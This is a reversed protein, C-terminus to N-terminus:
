DQEMERIAERYTRVDKHAKPRGFGFADKYVKINNEVQVLKFFSEMIHVLPWRFAPAKPLRGNYTAYGFAALIGSSVVERVLVSTIEIEAAKDGYPSAGASAIAASVIADVNIGAGIAWESIWHEFGQQLRPALFSATESFYVPVLSGFVGPGLGRNLELQLEDLLDQNFVCVLIHLRTRDNLESQSAAVSILWNARSESHILVVKDKM